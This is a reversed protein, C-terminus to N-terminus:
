PHHEPETLQLLLRQAPRFRPAMELAAIVEDKAEADRGCGHLAAALHYHADVPDSAKLALVTQFERVALAPQKVDLLLTGWRRHLEEDQPFIFSLEEFTKHAQDTRGSEAELTAARKLVTINMGGADRYKELMEMAATTNKQATYADALV